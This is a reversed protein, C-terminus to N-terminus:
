QKESERLEADRQAVADLMFNFERAMMAAEDSGTISSRALRNGARIQDITAQIGYLRRTIRRGMIWAILSGVVIAAMAYQVGSRTIQALKKRASQQGIGVRAWGVQRGGVLAPTAVDVLAASRSFVSQREGRPLDRLYLGRRSHDTHALVRGQGDTLMAFLLEPYRGQADVLEQLGAIDDAAIWGAATTALAQSLATAQETQRELLLARQRVTADCVFLTMMVAHVLAVGVILRGRLTGFLFRYITGVTM